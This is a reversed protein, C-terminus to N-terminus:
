SNNKYKNEAVKWDDITDIDQILNQSIIFGSTKDSVLKKNKLLTKINFWYFQGSDHFRKKFDQTRKISNEPYVYRLYNKKDFYLARQIPHEYEVVPFVTNLNEEIIKKYGLEIFEKKILPASPYICCGFDFILNRNKYETLVEELVDYTSSFDGSNKPSRIFPVKAGFDKSISAIEHDDTSVMIEDFLNSKIATDISYGIVPKGFFTKINKRPIRKSGGRAPIIAIKKM